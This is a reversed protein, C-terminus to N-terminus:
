EPVLYGLVSILKAVNKGKRTVRLKTNGLVLSLIM